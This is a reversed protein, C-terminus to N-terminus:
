KKSALSKTSRSQDRTDHPPLPRAPLVGHKDDLAIRNLKRASARLLEIDSNSPFESSLGKRVDSEFTSTKRRSRRAELSQKVKSQDDLDKIEVYGYKNLRDGRLFLRIKLRSPLAALLDRVDEDLYTLEKEKIALRKQEKYNKLIAVILAVVDKACPEEAICFVRSIPVRLKCKTWNVPALSSYCAGLILEVRHNFAEPVSALHRGLENWEMLEPAKRRRDMLGRKSGHAGIYLIQPDSTKLWSEFSEYIEAKYKARVTHMAISRGLTSRIAAIEDDEKKSTIWRIILIPDNLVNETSSMSNFTDLASTM